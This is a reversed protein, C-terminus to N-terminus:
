FTDLSAHTRDALYAEIDSQRWDLPALMSEAARLLQDAYFEGDYTDM